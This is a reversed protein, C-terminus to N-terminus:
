VENSSARLLGLAARCRRGIGEFPRMVVRGVKYLVSRDSPQQRLSTGATHRALQTKARELGAVLCTVLNIRYEDIQRAYKYKGHFQYDLRSFMKLSEAERAARGISNWM